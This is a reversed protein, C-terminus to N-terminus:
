ACSITYTHTHMEDMSSEKGTLMSGGALMTVEEMSFTLTHTHDDDGDFTLMGGGGSNILMVLQMQEDATLPLHTHMENSTQMLQLMGTTCSGGNMGGGAGGMGSTTEGM